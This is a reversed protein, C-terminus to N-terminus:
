AAVWKIALAAARSGALGRVAGQGQSGAPGAPGPEAVVTTSGEGEGGNSCYEEDDLEITM